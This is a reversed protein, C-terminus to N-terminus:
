WSKQRIEKARKFIEIDMTNLDRIKERMDDTVVKTACTPDKKYGSGSNEFFSPIQEPWGLKHGLIKLDDDYDELFGIFFLDELSLGNLYKSIRNQVAKRKAYDILTFDMMEQHPHKPNERIRKMVFYYNSIVRDVPDRLWTIVKSNHKEKIQRVHKFQLHGHIVSVSEPINKILKNFLTKKHFYHKRNTRKDLKDGYVYQLTKYFSKGATKPIHISILEVM